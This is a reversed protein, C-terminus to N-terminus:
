ESGRQFGLLVFHWLFAHRVSSFCPSLCLSIFLSLFLFPFFYTRKYNLQTCHVPVTLYKYNISWVLIYFCLSILIAWIQISTHRKNIKSIDFGKDCVRQKSHVTEILSGNFDWQRRLCLTQALYLELYICMM